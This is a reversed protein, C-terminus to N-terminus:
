GAATVMGEEYEGVPTFGLGAYCAVAPANDARVNLGVTTVTQGLEQCLRATVQAAYGRGRYSPLTAINGLSAVGYRPSCVHVSAVSVLVGDRRLGYCHGTELMRPDYFNGPYAEPYFAAVENADEPALRVVDAVDITALREPQTLLMKLHPGRSAFAYDEGLASAVGPSFHGYFRRPLLPRTAVVLEAMRARQEDDGALALMTPPEFGIYVLFLAAVEGSTMAGYWQTYPWFFDDLDGLEYLHLPTERRLYAEITEKDHLAIPM